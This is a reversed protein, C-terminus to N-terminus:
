GAAVLSEENEFASYVTLLLEADLDATNIDEEEFYVAVGHQKLGRIVPLLEVLNRPFQALSKVVIMDFKGTEADKLLKQYEKEEYTGAFEWEPNSLDSHCYYAVKLKQEEMYLDKDRNM